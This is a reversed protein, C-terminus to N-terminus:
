SSTILTLIYLCMSVGLPFELHEGQKCFMALFYDELKFPHCWRWGHKVLKSRYNPILFPFDSDHLPHWLLVREIPASPFLSFLYVRFGLDFSLLPKIFLVCDYVHEPVKLLLMYQSGVMVNGNNLAPPHLVILSVEYLYSAFECLLKRLHGLLAAAFQCSQILLQNCVPSSCNRVSCFAQSMM